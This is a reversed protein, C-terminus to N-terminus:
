PKNITFPQDITFDAGGIRDHLVVHFRYEGSDVSSPLTVYERYPYFAPPYVFQENVMSDDSKEFLTKGDPGSVGWDETLVNQGKENSKMGMMRFRLWVSQGATFVPPNVAPGDRSGAVEINKAVFAASTELPPANVTFAAATSQTKHAIQDEANLAITYKGPPAWPPLGITFHAKVPGTDDGVRQRIEITKNEFFPKGDPALVQNQTVVAIYSNSDREYGSVEYFLRVEDEPKYEANARPSASESDAFRLNTLGFTLIPVRPHRRVYLSGFVAGVLCAVLFFASVARKVAGHAEKVVVTHAALDGVRQKKKTVLASILAVLYVGIADVVRLINRVLARGVGCPAGDVTKVSLGLIFKGPTAGALGELLFLYVFFLLLTAGIVVVAPLGKVNFGTETLGGFFAGHTNGTLVFAPILFFFVDILHAALRAGLSGLPLAVPAPVSGAERPELPTACKGCFKQDDSCESGCSPCVKM